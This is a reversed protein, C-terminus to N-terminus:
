LACELFFPSCPEGMLDARLAMPAQGMCRSRLERDQVPVFSAGSSITLFKICELNRACNRDM